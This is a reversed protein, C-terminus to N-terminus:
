DGFHIKLVRYILTTNMIFATLCIIVSIINLSQQDHFANIMKGDSTNTIFLSTLAITISNVILIIFAQKTAKTFSRFQEMNSNSSYFVGLFIAIIIGANTSVLSDALAEFNLNLILNKHGAIYIFTAAIVISGLIESIFIKPLYPVKM